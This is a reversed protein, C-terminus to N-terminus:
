NYDHFFIDRLKCPLGKVEKKVVRIKEDSESKRIIADIEKKSYRYLNVQCQKVSIPTKTSVVPKKKSRERKKPKPKPAVRQFKSIKGDEGRVLISGNRM